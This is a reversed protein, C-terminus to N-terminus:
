CSLIGGHLGSGVVNWFDVEQVALCLVVIKINDGIFVQQHIIRRLIVTGEPWMPQIKIRHQKDHFPFTLVVYIELLVSVTLTTNNENGFILYMSKLPVILPIGVKHQKGFSKQFPTRQIRTHYLLHTQVIIM